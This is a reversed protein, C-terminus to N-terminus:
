AHSNIISGDKCFLHAPRLFMIDLGPSFEYILGAFDYCLDRFIFAPGGSMGGIDHLDERKDIDFAKIWYDREFHIAFRNEAVSAVRCGGSSFSPFVLEDFNKRERWLGPFGGFAVFDGEKVSPSPWPRPPKFFCSGIEGESNIDKAQAPTLRISALDLQDNEDILQSLPDLEVNGIQFLARRNKNLMERYASLVHYCTIAIPGNGFDVLTITGNNIQTQKGKEPHEGIFAAKAFRLPYKGLERGLDGALLRKAELIRNPDDFKM